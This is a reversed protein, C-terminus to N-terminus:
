SGIKTVPRVQMGVQLAALGATVVTEGPSLGRIVLINGGAAEGTEVPRTEARDGEGVVWVFPKGEPDAAIATAPVSVVGAIGGSADSVLLRGAMGPLIVVDEPTQIAMRGRFTQTAPDARTSFEVLKAVFERDPLADLIAISTVNDNEALRVVDPGPVDFGLELTTLNQIVAIPTGAQVNAFNDVIRDAVIGDFPAVLVADGRTNRAAQLQSELGAISALQADVEERRAGSRGKTMEQQASRLQAEAVKLSALKSDMAAKSEVGKRYLTLTNKAQTRAEDVQAQAADINAQIVGIDEDRAGSSLQRLQARAATLQAEIQSVNSSFDRTDIRAILDGKRVEAMARVPLEIIQGSVRFSLEAELSPLVLAPYTYETAATSAVAQAVKVPRPGPDPAAVEEAPECASLFLIIFGFSYILHRKSMGIRGNGYKLTGSSGQLM